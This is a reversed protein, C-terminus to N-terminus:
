SAKIWSVPYIDRSDLKVDTFWKDPCIVVKDPSQGLWAGWWSFTSNTVIFHKCSAMVMLTEWANAGHIEGPLFIKDPFVANLHTVLTEACWKMDDSFIHYYINSGTRNDLERVANIYYDIPIQAYIHELGLYDGRRVHICVSNDGMNSKMTNYASSPRERLTIEKLLIDRIDTFYKETQWYGRLFCNSENVIRPDFPFTQETIFHLQQENSPASYIGSLNFKDLMFQRGIHVVRLYLDDHTRHAIARGISYQFLQNGLGGIIQTVIAM